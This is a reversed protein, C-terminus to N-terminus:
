IKKQFLKKKNVFSCLEDLQCENLHLSHLLNSLILKCHEGAKLVVKNVGDKSLDLIRATSRVGNGEITCNIIKKITDDSYHSNYFVTNRTESFRTDCIKCKLMQKVENQKKYTGSKIINGQNRLGYCRCNENPCFYNRINVMPTNKIHQLFLFYIM